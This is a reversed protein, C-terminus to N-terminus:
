CLLDVLLRSPDDPLKTSFNAKVNGPNARDACDGSVYWQWDTSWHADVQLLIHM